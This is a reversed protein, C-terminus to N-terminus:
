VSSPFLRALDAVVQRYSALPILIVRLLTSDDGSCNSKNNNDSSNKSVMIDYVADAADALHEDDFLKYLVGARKDRYCPAIRILHSLPRFDYEDDDDDNDAGDNDARTDQQQLTMAYDLDLLLQQHLVPVLELPLNMMRGHSLLGVHQDSGTASSSSDDVFYQRLTTKNISDKPVKSQCYELLTALATEPSPTGDGTNETQKRKKKKKKQKNENTDEKAPASSSSSSENPPCSSSMSPLAISAYGYINGKNSVDNEDGQDAETSICTGVSNNSQVMYDALLSPQVGVSAPYQLSLFNAIGHFFREDLDCFVFDVDIRDIPVDEDEDDDSDEDDYDKGDDEKKKNSVLKKAKKAAPGESTTRTTKGDGGDDDEDEDEDSDPRRVLQGDLALDDEDDDDDDATSEESSLDQTRSVAAAASPPTTM